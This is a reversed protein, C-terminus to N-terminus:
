ALTRKKTSEFMFKKFYFGKSSVYLRNTASVSTIKKEKKQFKLSFNLNLKRPLKGLDPRLTM